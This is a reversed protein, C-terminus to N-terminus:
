LQQHPPPRPSSSPTDPEAGMQTVPPNTLFSSRYALMLKLHHKSKEAGCTKNIFSTFNFQFKMNHQHQLKPSLGTSLKESTKILKNPTPTQLTKVITFAARLSLKERCTCLRCMPFQIKGKGDWTCVTCMYPVACIPFHSTGM